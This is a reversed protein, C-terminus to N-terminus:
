PSSSPRSWQSLAVNVATLTVPKSLFDDMGAAACRERDEALVGATMAIIPIRDGHMERRRIERTAEFGDLVPMHCDMLVVTYSTHLVATLAEAGNGVIDVSYGLATVMGRAVLQNMTNDEVVLVRGKTPGSDRPGQPTTRTASGSRLQPAMLKLLKNYLDSSRVPKRLWATVGARELLDVDLESTLTLMIIPTGSLAADDSLQAALQLGDMQPMCMDLVAFDYPEGQDAKAHMRAVAEPATAAADARLGWSGLQSTLIMRNTVNDDVVLVRLGTLLDLRPISQGPPSTGVALPIEFWFTSGAGIESDFGITGGMAEVLRQCIALGLGTGGYRRTTSPDAQTFSEFLRGRSEQSIGIGTDAIEFRVNLRSHDLVAVSVKTVVEGSATFKVGNSMLNVLIQRIRGSDGVLVAPVDPPCHVMLELSKAHAAPALLEAVEEVTRRVEFDEYVLEVKGAELKSFDLIDNIVTLLAEASVHVGEAYQRQREDLQTDLLLNTLGIVGNMPTRIEHSMTALFESKVRLSEMAADRAAAVTAHALKRGSIDSVLNISGVHRGDGDLLPSHNVLCWVVSGDKRVYRCDVQETLPSHRERDLFGRAQQQGVDDLLDFLTIGYMEPVSYGLLDAMQPNAYTTHGDLDHVWIGEFASEVIQRYLDSPVDVGSLPIGLPLRASKSVLM